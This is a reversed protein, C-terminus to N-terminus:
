TVLPLTSQRLSENNLIKMIKNLWDTSQNKQIKHETRFTLSLSHLAFLLPFLEVVVTVAQNRFQRCCILHTFTFHDIFIEFHIYDKLSLQIVKLLFGRM